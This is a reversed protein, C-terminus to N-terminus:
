LNLSDRRGRCSIGLAASLILMWTAPEPVTTVNGNMELGYNAHINTLGAPSGDWRQWWLFDNGDVDGDNDYDGDSPAANAWPFWPLEDVTLVDEDGLTNQLQQATFDDDFGNWTAFYNWAIGWQEMEDADPLTGSESLAIIKEGNYKELADLWPGSMNDSPDTYIDLGVMDVTDDGPYWDPNGLDTFEWILNDLGHHDTLRDYMLSWLEKFNDSGHAGWWFWGGEAEHLPRWIVPVGATEFKQLEVAITDIDSIIKNYDASGPNNLAGNLDFTTSHTYFGRWWEMGPQDILDDPANWHWMMSVVGGTQQAWAITDETENHNPQGYITRSSSYNILDSGRVAPLLGGSKTVYSTPPFTNTGSNVDHQLGSMTKDGYIGTLYQMLFRTRSDSNANVLTSPVPLVETPEYTRFELYDVDHYGWYQSISASSLGGNVSFLGALDDSFSSSEDFMGSGSIDGVDFYYGKEGYPSRYGVWMEYLGDPLDFPNIAVSNNSDGSNFRVYQSGSAGGDSQVSTGGGGLIGNEAEYRYTQAFVASSIMGVVSATFLLLKM